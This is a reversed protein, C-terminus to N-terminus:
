SLAKVQLFGILIKIKNMPFNNFEIWFQFILFWAPIRHFCFRIHENLFFRVMFDAGKSSPFSVSLVYSENQLSPVVLNKKRFPSALLSSSRPRFNAFFFLISKFIIIIGGSEMDSLILDTKRLSVVPWTASVTQPIATPAILQVIVQIFVIKISCVITKFIFNYYSTGLINACIHTM